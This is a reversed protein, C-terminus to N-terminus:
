NEVRLRLFRRQNGSLEVTDTVTVREATNSSGTSSWIPVFGEAPSRAAEVIYTLAPDAIRNFSLTLRPAGDGTVGPILGATSVDNVRPDAGIAYELLNPQGDGDPDATDAARGADTTQSFNLVRWQEIETLLVTRSVVVASFADIELTKANPNIPTIGFLGAVLDARRGPTNAHALVEPVSSFREVLTRISQAYLQLQGRAEVSREAWARQEAYRGGLWVALLLGALIALVTFAVRYRHQQPM